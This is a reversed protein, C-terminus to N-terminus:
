TLEGQQSRPSGRRTPDIVVGSGVVVLGEGTPAGRMDVGVQGRGLVQLQHGRQAPRPPDGGPDHDHQQGRGPHACGLDGIQQAIVRDRHAAPVGSVGAVAQGPQGFSESLVEPWTSLGGRLGRM